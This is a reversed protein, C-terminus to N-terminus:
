PLAIDVSVSILRTPSFISKGSSWCSGSLVDDDTIEPAAEFENQFIVSEGDVSLAEKHDWLRSLERVVLIEEVIPTAKFVFIDDTREGVYGSLTVVEPAVGGFYGADNCDDFIDIIEASEFTDCSLEELLWLMGILLLNGGWIGM